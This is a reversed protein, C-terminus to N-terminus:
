KLQLWGKLLADQSADPDPLPGIKWSQGMKNGAGPLPRSVTDIGLGAYALYKNYDIAAVTNVYEFVAALQVGAVLECAQRFEADSFGRKKEQYYERYLLRMVDDLSRKNETAHRIAFDLLLGIAPGKDYYSITKGAEDGTRGFPGDSWTEYSAQTLSQFLHGPHNEYAAINSQFSGFLQEPSILGARRIMMYEYYVTLGESVWLLNTRNEKSYDFPGLEVPRIRKVNYHHFYEHAIFSMMRQNGAPTKLEGGEFSITTSNLHEIGGRGPGIALFTYQKYPIDGIIAIGSEVVKKLDGMFQQRDFDGLQYGIFRHEVGQVRFAPLEELNGMLIPCDYLIDFDPAKFVYRKGAVSDLGTAVRSWRSYPQIIVTVPHNIKGEVYLFIGAPSIYGHASDLYSNAVFRKTAKVDYELRVSRKGGTVQWTNSATKIYPLPKGGKDFVHFNEVNKAYDMIQYYGPMWAPMRFDLTDSTVGDWRLAVHYTHTEPNPMSVTYIMTDRSIQAEVVPIMGGLVFSLWLLRRM